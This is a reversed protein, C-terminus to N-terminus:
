WCQALETTNALLDKLLTMAAEENWRDKTAHLLQMVFNNAWVTTDHVFGDIPRNTTFEWNPCTFTAGQHIEALIQMAVTSVFTWIAPAGPNGQGPGHLLNELTSTWYEESVGLNTKVHYNTRDLFDGLCQCASDPMGLQKFRLMAYSMVIRDYCSKADNDLTALDTRTYRAIEYTLAKLLAADM